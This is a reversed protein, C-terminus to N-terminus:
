FPVDSEASDDESEAAFSPPTLVYYSRGNASDRTDIGAIFGQPNIALNDAIQGHLPSDVSTLFTAVLKTAAGNVVRYFMIRVAEGNRTNFPDSARIIAVDTGVLDELKVAPIDENKVFTGLKRTAM